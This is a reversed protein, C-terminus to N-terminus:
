CLFYVSLPRRVEGNQYAEGGKAAQTGDQSQTSSSSGSGSTLTGQQLKLHTYWIIGSQLLCPLAATELCM